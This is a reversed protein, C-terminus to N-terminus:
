HGMREKRSKEEEKKRNRRIVVKKHFELNGLRWAQSHEGVGREDTKM